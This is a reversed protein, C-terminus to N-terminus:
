FMCVRLTRADDTVSLAKTTFFSRSRVFVNLGDTLIQYIDICRVNDAPKAGPDAAPDSVPGM